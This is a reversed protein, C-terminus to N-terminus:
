GTIAKWPSTQSTPNASQAADRAQAREMAAALHADNPGPRQKPLQIVNNGGFSVVEAAVIEPGRGNNPHPGMQAEAQQYLTNWKERFKPMSLINPKWFESRQSWELVDYAFQFHVGDKDLLLRAADRWRDTIPDTRCGRAAMMEVLRNCLAEVDARPKTAPKPKAPANSKRKGKPKSASPEDPPPTATVSSFPTQNKVETETETEAETKSGTQKLVQKANAETKAEARRSEGSAKGGSRGAAARKESLERVEAASRQHDLYDHIVYVDGLGQPCDKCDHQARHWLNAELLRSALAEVDPLDTLRAVMRAPVIGDTLLRSSYCLSSVYLWAAMGGVEAIKPHDPLGDHIRVYTRRDTAM